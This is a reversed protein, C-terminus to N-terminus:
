FPDPMSAGLNLYADKVSICWDERASEEFGHIIIKTQVDTVM